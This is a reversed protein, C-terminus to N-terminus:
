YQQATLCTVHEIKLRVLCYKGQSLIAFVIRFEANWHCNNRGGDAVVDRARVESETGISRQIFDSFYIVEHKM